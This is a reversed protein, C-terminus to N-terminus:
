AATRARRPGKTPETDQRRPPGKPERSPQQPPEDPVGDNTGLIDSVIGRVDRHLRCALVQGVAYIRELRMPDLGSVANRLTGYPIEPVLEALHKADKIGAEAMLHKVRVPQMKNLTAM